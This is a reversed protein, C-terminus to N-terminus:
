KGYDAKLERLANAYSFAALQCDAVAQQKVVPQEEYKACAQVLDGITKDNRFQKTCLAIAANKEDLREQGEANSADLKEIKAACDDKAAPAGSFAVLLSACIVISRIM